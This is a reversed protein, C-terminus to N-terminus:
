PLHKELWHASYPNDNYAPIEAYGASQYLPLAETLYAATDLRVAHCGLEAAASELAALLSRGIGLGRASPDVWMRKIEAHDADLSRVAGCGVAHGDLRALLFVGRPPTFETTPVTILGLDFGGPGGPFRTALEGYYRGLLGQALTSDPPEQTICLDTVAHESHPRM